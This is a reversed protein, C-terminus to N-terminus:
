VPKKMQPVFFHDRTANYLHDTTKYLLSQIPIPKPPSLVPQRLRTTMKFLYNNLLNSQLIILIDCFIFMVKCAACHFNYPYFMLSSIFRIIVIM